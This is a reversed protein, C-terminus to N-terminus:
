LLHKLADMHDEKPDEMFHSLFGVSFTLDLRTHLLYPLYGINSCYQTADTPSTTSRKSLKLKPEMPTVCENCGEIGTKELLKKAYATQCLRHWTV